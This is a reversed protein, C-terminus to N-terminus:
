AARSNGLAAEALREAETLDIRGTDDVPIAELYVIDSPLAIEGIGFAKARRRLATRDADAETTLLVIREGKRPDPLALALHRSDPWLGAALGECAALPVASDRIDAVRGADGYVSLFGERDISVLLGTDLWGEEFPQVRGPTDLDVWGSMLGPGSLFLRGGRELNGHLRRGLLQLVQGIQRERL